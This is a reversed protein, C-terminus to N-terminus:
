FKYALGVQLVNNKNDDDGKSVDTVGFNYRVGFDIHEIGNFNFYSNPDSSFYGTAFPKEPKNQGINLELSWKNYANELKDQACISNFCLTSLLITTVYTKM